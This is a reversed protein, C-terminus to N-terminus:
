RSIVLLVTGGEVGRAIVLASRGAPVTSRVLTAALAGGAAGLEGARAPLFVVERGGAEAEIRRLLPPPVGNAVFVHSVDHGRLEALIAGLSLDGSPDHGRGYARIRPGEGAEALVCVAAAEVLGRAEFDPGPAEIGGAVAFRVRGIAIWASAEALAEAGAAWGSVITESEGGLQEAIAIEGNVTNCVTRAFLSPGMEPPPGDGLSRSYEANSSWCALSSGFLTGWRPDGRESAGLGSDALALRTAAFGLAAYRDMRRFRSPPEGCAAAVDGPSVVVGAGALVPPPDLVVLRV